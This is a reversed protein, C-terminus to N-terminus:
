VAGEKAAGAFRDGKDAAPQITSGASKAETEHGSIWLQGNVGNVTQGPAGRITAYRAFTVGAADWQRAEQSGDHTTEDIMKGM